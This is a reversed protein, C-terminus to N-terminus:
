SIVPMRVTVGLSVPQSVIRDDPISDGHAALTQLYLELAEEANRVAGEYTTGWTNCGPLAPFYAMYGIPHKEISLM